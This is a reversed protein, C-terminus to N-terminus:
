ATISLGDKKLTRKGPNKHYKLRRTEKQREYEETEKAKTSKFTLMEQTIEKPGKRLRCIRKWYECQRLRNLSSYYFM